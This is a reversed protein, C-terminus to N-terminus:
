FNILYNFDHWSNYHNKEEEYNKKRKFKKVILQHEPYFGKFIRRAEAMSEARCYDEFDEGIKLEYLHSKM